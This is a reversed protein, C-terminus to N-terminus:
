SFKLFLMSESGAPFNREFTCINLVSTKQHSVPNIFSPPTFSFLGLVCKARGAVSNMVM